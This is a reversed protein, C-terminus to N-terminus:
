PSKACMHKHGLKYLTKCRECYEHCMPCRLLKPAKDFDTRCICCTKAGCTKCKCTRGALLHCCPCIDVKSNNKKFIKKVVTHYQMLLERNSATNIDFQDVDDMVILYDQMDLAEFEHGPMWYNPMTKRRAYNSSM